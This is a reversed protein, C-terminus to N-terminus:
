DIGFFNLISLTITYPEDRNLVKCIAHYIQWSLYPVNAADSFTTSREIADDVKSKNMTGMIAGLVKLEDENLELNFKRTVPPTAETLEM